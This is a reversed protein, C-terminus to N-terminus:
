VNGALSDDSKESFTTFYPQSASSDPGDEFPHPKLFSAPNLSPAPCLQLFGELGAGPELPSDEGEGGEKELGSMGGAAPGKEKGLSPQEMDPLGCQMYGEQELGVSSNEEVGSPASKIEENAPEELSLLGPSRPASSLEALPSPAPSPASGLGSSSATASRPPTTEEEECTGPTPPPEESEELIPLPPAEAKKEMAVTEPAVPDDLLMEGETDSAEDETASSVPSGPTMAAAEADAPQQLPERWSPSTAPVIDPLVSPTTPSMAEAAM